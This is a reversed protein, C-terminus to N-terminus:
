SRLYSQIKKKLDSAPIAVLGEVIKFQRCQLTFDTKKKLRYRRRSWSTGHVIGQKLSVLYNFGIYKWVQGRELSCVICHHCYQLVTNCFGAKPNKARKLDLTKHQVYFLSPSHSLFPAPANIHDALTEIKCLFQLWM